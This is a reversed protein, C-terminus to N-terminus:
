EYLDSTKVVGSIANIPLALMDENNDNGNAMIVGNEVSMAFMVHRNNNTLIVDGPEIDSKRPNYILDVGYTKPIYVIFERVRIFAPSFNKFNDSTELGGAVLIQSVYNCCNTGLDGACNTYKPNRVYAYKHAYSISKKLDLRIKQPNTDIVADDDATKVCSGSIWGTKGNIKIQYWSGSKATAQVVAGRRLWNIVKGSTGATDRVNATDVKVQLKISVKTEAPATSSETEIKDGSLTGNSPITVTINETYKRCNDSYVWGEKGDYSIKLWGNSTETATVVTGSEIWDIVESSSTPGSRMNAAVVASISYKEEIKQGAIVNENEASSTVEEDSADSETYTSCNSKHIWGTKNDYNVCYWNGSKQNVTLVTGKKIWGIVDSDIDASRRFNASVANICLKEVSEAEPETAAGTTEETEVSSTSGNSGSAATFLTCNEGSLWGNKRNFEANIWKGSIEEVTIVTGAPIWAIVDSSIDAKSRLNAAVEASIKVQDGVAFKKETEENRSPVTKGAECNDLKVWGTLTKGSTGPIDTSYGWSGSIETVTFSSGNAVYGVIGEGPTERVNASQCDVTYRGASYAASVTMAPMLALATCCVAAVSGILHGMSFRSRTKM